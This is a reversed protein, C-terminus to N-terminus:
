VKKFVFALLREQSKNRRFSFFEGNLCRTCAKTVNIADPELGAEMLQSKIELGNDLYLKGGRNEVSTKRFHSATEENVSYCCPRIYPGIFASFPAQAKPHRAVAKALKLPLQQATGRWGCHALGIVSATKDWVFVPACDAAYVAAAIGPASLLWADADLLPQKLLELYKERSDLEVIRDGHVQEFVAAKAPIAAAAMLKDRNETRSMDGAPKTSVGHIVDLASLRDDQYLKVSAM